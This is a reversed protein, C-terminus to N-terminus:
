RSGPSEKDRDLACIGAQLLGLRRIRAIEANAVFINIKKIRQSGMRSLGM